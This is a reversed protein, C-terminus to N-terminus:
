RMGAFNDVFRNKIVEGTDNITIKTALIRLIRYGFQEEGFYGFTVIGDHYRGTKIVNNPFEFELVMGNSVM